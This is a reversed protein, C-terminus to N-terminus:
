NQNFSSGGLKKRILSARAADRAEPNDPANHCLVLRGPQIDLLLQNLDQHTIIEFGGTGIGLRLRSLLKMAEETSIRRAHRLIGFARWIDDQVAIGGQSTLLSRAELEQRLIDHITDSLQLEIDAIAKGLTVENSIQYFHGTNESNEGHFGRVTLGQTVLTKFIAQEKRKIALGPLHMMVSIRLGTGVNTPCATLFGLEEHYSFNLVQAIERELKTLADHVGSLNLGPELCQMRIHDEENVMVSSKLDPAIYVLRNAGGREMEKSILRSEKLYGRELGTAETMDIRHYTSLLPSIEFASRVDNYIRTLEASDAHPAFRNGAINRAFRARSSVIVHHYPSEDGAWTKEKTLEAPITM